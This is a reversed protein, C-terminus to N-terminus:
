LQFGGSRVQGSGVRYSGRSQSCRKVQSSEVRGAPNHFGGSGGCDRTIRRHTPSSRVLVMRPTAALGPLCESTPFRNDLGDHQLITRNVKTNAQTASLPTVSRYGQHPCVGYCARDFHLIVFSSPIFKSLIRSRM